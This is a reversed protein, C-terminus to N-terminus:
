DESLLGAARRVLKELEAATPARWDAIAWAWLYGLGIVRAQARTIPAEGQRWAGALWPSVGLISGLRPSPATRLLRATQRRL